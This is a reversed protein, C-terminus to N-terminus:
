RYRLTRRVLAALAWGSPVGMANAVADSASGVRGPVFSQLWEAFVGVTILIVGLVLASRLQKLVLVPVAGLLCYVLVHVAKDLHHEPPPALGSMLSVWAVVGVAAVWATVFLKPSM